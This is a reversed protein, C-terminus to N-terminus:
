LPPPPDLRVRKNVSRSRTSLGPETPHRAHQGAIETAGLCVIGGAGLQLLLRRAM